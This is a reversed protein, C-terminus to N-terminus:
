EPSFWDELRASVYPDIGELTWSTDRGAGLVLEIM